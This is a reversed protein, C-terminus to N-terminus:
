TTVPRASLGQGVIKMIEEVAEPSFQAAQLVGGGGEGDGVPFEALLFCNLNFLFSSLPPQLCTIFV